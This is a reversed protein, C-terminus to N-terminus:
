DSGQRDLPFGAGEVATLERSRLVYAVRGRWAPALAREGSSSASAPLARSHCRRITADLRSAPEGVVVAGVNLTVYALDDVNSVKAGKTAEETEASATNSLQDVERRKRVIAPDIVRGSAAPRQSEM